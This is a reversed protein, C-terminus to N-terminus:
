MLIPEPIPEPVAHMGQLHHSVEQSGDNLQGLHPTHGPRLQELQALDAAHVPMPALHALHQEDHYSNGLHRQQPQPHVVPKVKLGGVDEGAAVAERVFDVFDLTDQLDKMGLIDFRVCEFTTIGAEGFIEIQRRLLQLRWTLYEPRPAMKCYCRNCVEVRTIHATAKSKKGVYDSVIPRFNSTQAEQCEFCTAEIKKHKPTGVIAPTGDQKVLPRQKGHGKRSIIRKPKGNQTRKARKLPFGEADVRPKAPGRVRKAKRPQSVEDINMDDDDDEDKDIELTAELVDPDGHDSEESASAAAASKNRNPQRKRKGANGQQSKRLSKALSSLPKQITSTGDDTAEARDSARSASADESMIAPEPIADQADTAANGHTANNDQAHEEALTTAAPSERSARTKRTVPSKPVAIARSREPSQSGGHESKSAAATAEASPAAGANRASTRRTAPPSVLEEASVVKLDGHRKHKKSPSPEEQQQQQQQQEQASTGAGEDTHRVLFFNSADSHEVQKTGQKQASGSESQQRSSLFPM